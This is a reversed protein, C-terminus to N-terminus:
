QFGYDRWLKVAKRVKVIGTKYFPHDRDILMKYKQDPYIKSIGGALQHRYYRHGTMVNLYWAAAQDYDLHEFADKFQKDSSVKLGKLELCIELKGSEGDAKCRAGIGFRNSRYFEHERRFDSQLAINRFLEDKWFTKSMQRILEQDEESVNTLDAKHPELIGAHFASGFSFITDLGDHKQRGEVRSVLEKLDSNSAYPHQFYGM